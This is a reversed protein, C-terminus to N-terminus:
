QREVIQESRENEEGASSGGWPGRPEGARGERWEWWARVIIARLPHVGEWPLRVTKGLLFFPRPNIGLRRMFSHLSASREGHQLANLSARAKGRPTRPGTSRLANRRRADLERPTLHRRKLLSM